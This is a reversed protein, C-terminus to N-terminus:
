WEAEIQLWRHPGIDLRVQGDVVSLLGTPQGLFDTSCAARFPRYARLKTQATRGETELIRLRVGSREGAIPAVHTVIVNKAGVHLFWGRPESLRDPWTATGANGCCAIALATQAPYACDLALAFQFRRREEGAVVLMTDLWSRSALRHFPLGLGYCTVTGDDNSIQVWEPSEIRSRSTPRSLWDAGRRVSSADGSCAVRSAFYSSWIEGDPLRAVDFEVDVIAAPLGRVLRVAQTFQALLEGGADLLRGHSTIEGALEDSRTVAIRDALMQTELRPPGDLDHNADAFRRATREDCVVLRQSLRTRRDHHTKMSQIGGATEHIVVELHENRLTRGAALPLPPASTPKGDLLVYGCGPVAPVWLSENRQSVPGALPDFGVFKECSFNWPNIVVPESAASASGSPVGPLAISTLGDVLQRHNDVVDGRYKDVRSSIANAGADTGPSSAYESPDFASWDEIERTVRFYEDLTVPRGLVPGFAAARRLDDYFESAHGPWGALLVTAVHDHAISDGIREALKLWTEPRAVDLPTASLADIQTGDRSGWRTKRQQARPFPGGDFAAHLAAQLGCGTLIEPLLPSYACDFQGFVELERGLHHRVMDRGALLDALIAEPSQGATPRGHMSGGFVCATGADLARRLEALSPPHEDDMRQLLEGTALLSTPLGAALKARLPEGLTSGALLTVDVVYFDVAYVHNRADMLLDFARALEDHAKADDGAVAASAAEIVAGSFQETDLVTAYHMARTLLEVQLHAFGLALFDGVITETVCSADIAAAALAAAITENRSAAAEIPPPNHPGTARLRDCWDSPLQHRSVSPVLVLEAELASPDPLEDAPHWGPLRGTAGILAPHWLATWATLLEAASEGSLHTPFDELRRCPLILSARRIVM